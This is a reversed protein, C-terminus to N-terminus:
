KAGWRHQMIFRTWSAPIAVKLITKFLYARQHWIVRGKSLGLARIVKFYSDLVARHRTNSVGDLQFTAAPLPTTAWRLDRAALSMLLGDAQSGVDLRYGGLRAFAKAQIFFGQHRFVTTPFVNRENCPAHIRPEIAIGSPLRIAAFIVEATPDAMSDLLDDLPLLEDGANIWVLLSDPHALRASKNMADYIGRDPESISRTIASAHAAILAQTGDSSDGDVVIHDIVRRSGARVDAVSQLTKALGRRDNRVVTLISLTTFASSM